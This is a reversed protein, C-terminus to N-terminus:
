FLLDFPIGSDSCAYCKPSTVFEYLTKTLFDSLLVYSSLGLFMLSFLLFHITLLHNILMHFSYMHHQNPVVPSTQSCLVDSESCHASDM